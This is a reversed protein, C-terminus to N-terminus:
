ELISKPLRQLRWENDLRSRSTWSRYNIHWRYGVHVFDQSQLEFFREDKTAINYGNRRAVGFESDDGAYGVPETVGVVEDGEGVEVSAAM